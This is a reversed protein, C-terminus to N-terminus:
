FILNPFLAVYVVIFAFVIYMIYSLLKRQTSYFHVGLVPLILLGYLKMIVIHFNSSNTWADSLAWIFMLPYIILAGILYTKLIKM